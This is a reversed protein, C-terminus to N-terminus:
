GLQSPTYTYNLPKVVSMWGVQLDSLHHSGNDWLSCRLTFGQDDVKIVRTSFYAHMDHNIFADQVGHHILPPNNYPHAFKVSVDKHMSASGKDHVWTDSNGCAIKGQEVHRLEELKQSTENNITQQRLNDMELKHVHELLDNLSIEGVQVNTSTTYTVAHGQDDIGSVTCSYNGAQDTTPESWTLSLYGREGPQKSIGGTVVLKGQDALAKVPVYDSVTAVDQGDRSVVLSTVFQVNDPTTQTNRKGIVAATPDTTTTLKQWVSDELSCRVGLSHTLYPKIFDTSKTLFIVSGQAAFIALSCVFVVVLQSDMIVDGM